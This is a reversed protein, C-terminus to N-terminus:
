LDVTYTLMLLTSTIQVTLLQLRSTKFARASGFNNSNYSGVYQPARAKKQAPAAM